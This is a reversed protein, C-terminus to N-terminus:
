EDEDSDEEKKPEVVEIPGGAPLKGRFDEGFKGRSIEDHARKLEALVDDDSLQQFIMQVALIPQDSTLKLIKALEKQAAFSDHLEMDIIKGTKGHTRIRKIRHVNAYWQEPDDVKLVPVWSHPQGTRKSRRGQPQLSTFPMITTNALDAIKYTVEAASMAFSEMWSHVALRIHPKMLMQSAMSAATAYSVEKIGKLKSQKKKGTNKRPQMKRRLAQMAAAGNGHYPGCYLQVFRREYPTLPELAKKVSPPLHDLWLKKPQDPLQSAAM